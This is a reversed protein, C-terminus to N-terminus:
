EARTLPLIATEGALGQRAKQRAFLDNLASGRASAGAGAAGADGRAVDVLDAVEDGFDELLGPAIVYYQYSILPLTLSASLPHSRPALLRPTSLAHPHPHEPRPCM